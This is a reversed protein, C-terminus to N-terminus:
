LPRAPNIPQHNNPKTREVYDIWNKGDPNNGLRIFAVAHQELTSGVGARYGQGYAVIYTQAKAALIHAEIQRLSDPTFQSSLPRNPVFVSLMNCVKATFGVMEIAFNIGNLDEKNLVEDANLQYVFFLQSNQIGIITQTTLPENRNDLLPAFMEIRFLKKDFTDIFRKAESFHSNKSNGMANHVAFIHNKLENDFSPSTISIPPSSIKFASWRQKEQPETKINLRIAERAVVQENTDPVIPTPEIEVGAIPPRPLAEAPRLSPSTSPTGDCGIIALGIVAAALIQAELRM